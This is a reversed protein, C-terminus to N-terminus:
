AVMCIIIEGVVFVYVYLDSMCTGEIRYVLDTWTKLFGTAIRNSYHSHLHIILVFLNAGVYQCEIHM